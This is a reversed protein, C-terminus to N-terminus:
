KTAMAQARAEDAAAEATKGQQRYVYSRLAYFLYNDPFRVLAANLTTISEDYRKLNSLASAKFIWGDTSSADAAIVKEAEALGEAARGLSILIKAAVAHYDTEAPRLEIARRISTLAAENDKRISLLGALYYHAPPYAGNISISKRYDAEAQATEGMVEYSQGRNAYALYQQPNSAIAATFSAVADDPRSMRAYLSGRLNLGGDHDPAMKLFEIIDTMAREDQGLAFFDGARDFWAMPFQPNLTTAKSYMGIAQQLKGQADLAQGKVYFPYFFSGDVNILGDMLQIAEDPKGLKIAAKARTICLNTNEPNAALGRLAIRYSEKYDAKSYLLQALVDAANANRADASVIKRFAEIAEDTEGEQVLTMAAKEADTQAVAPLALALLLAILLSKMM